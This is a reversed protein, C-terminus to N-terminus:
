KRIVEIDRFLAEEAGSCRFGVRGYVFGQLLLPAAYVLRNNIFVRIGNDRVETRASNWETLSIGLRDDAIVRFGREPDPQNGTSPMRTHPRIRDHGCQIMVFHHHDQARVIWGAYDSVIRFRFSFDYNQWYQGWQWLGGDDSNTVRIIDGQWSWNGRHDWNVPHISASKHILIQSNALRRALSRHILILAIIIIVLLLWQFIEEYEVAYAFLFKALSVMLQIIFEIGPKLVSNWIIPVVIVVFTFLAFLGKNDNAWTRLGRYFNRLFQVSVEHSFRTIM